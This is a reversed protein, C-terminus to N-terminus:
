LRAIHEEFRESPKIRELLDLDEETFIESRMRDIADWFRVAYTSRQVM